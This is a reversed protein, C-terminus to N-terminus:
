GYAQQEGDVRVEEKQRDVFRFYAYRWSKKLMLSGCVGWFGVVFGVAMGSYFLIRETGDEEKDNEKKHAEDEDNQM